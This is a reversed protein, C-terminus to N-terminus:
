GFSLNMLMMLVFVCYSIFFIIWLIFNSLLSMLILKKVFKKSDKTKNSFIDLYHKKFWGVLLFCEWVPKIIFSVQFLSYGWIHRPIIPLIITLYFWIINIKLCLSKLEKKVQYGSKILVLSIMKYSILSVILTFIITLLFTYFYFVKEYNSINFFRKEPFFGFLIFFILMLGFIWKNIRMNM